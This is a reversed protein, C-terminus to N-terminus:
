GNEADACPNHPMESHTLRSENGVIEGLIVELQNLLAQRDTFGHRENTASLGLTFRWIPEPTDAERWVRIVIAHYSFVEDLM